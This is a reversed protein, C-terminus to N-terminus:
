SRLTSEVTVMNNLRRSGIMIIDTPPITDTTTIASYRGIKVIDSKYPPVLFKRNGIKSKRNGITLYHVPFKLDITFDNMLKASHSLSWTVRKAGL